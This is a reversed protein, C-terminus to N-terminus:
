MVKCVWWMRLRFHSTVPQIAPPAGRGDCRRVGPTEWGEMEHKYSAM